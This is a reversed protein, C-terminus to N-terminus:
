INIILTEIIDSQYNKTPNEDCGSDEEAGNEKYEVLLHYKTTVQDLELNL